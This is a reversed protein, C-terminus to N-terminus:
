LAGSSINPAVSYVFAISTHDIPHTIASIIIPFGIKGPLELMLYNISIILTRPLGVFSSTKAIFGLQSSYPSIWPTFRIALDDICYSPM